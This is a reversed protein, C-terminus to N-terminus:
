AQLRMETPEFTEATSVESSACPMRIIFRSGCGVGRSAARLTGGHAEVLSKAVYLGLGLGGASRETGAQGAQEYPQFVTTLDAPAIGMGNDGVIIVANRAERHVDIRVQGGCNTYKAANGILNHMVQCLKTVDADLVLPREPMNVTLSHRRVDVLPRATEVARTVVDSVLTPQCRLQLNGHKLRLFDLLDDILGSMAGVQRDIIASAQGIQAADMKGSKFLHALNRLPVLPDRLEHAIIAVFLDTDGTLASKAPIASRASKRKELNAPVAVPQMMDVLSDEM